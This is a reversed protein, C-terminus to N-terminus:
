NIFDIDVPPLGVYVPNDLNEAKEGISPYISNKLDYIIVGPDLANRDSLFLHDSPEHYALDAFYGAEGEDTRVVKVRSAAGIYVGYANYSNHPNFKILQTRLNSDSIIAYGEVPQGGKSKTIVFDTIEGQATEESFVYGNPGYGKSIKMNQIDIAVIGCDLEFSSGFNGVCSIFLHDSTSDGLAPDWDNHDVYQFKSFPFKANIWHDSGDGWEDVRMSIERIVRNYTAGHSSDVDVVLVSSYGAVHGNGRLRECAVFLRMTPGHFYMYRARPIGGASYPAYQSIDIDGIIDGTQPNIILITPENHRTVYARDPEVLAIDFPNCDGPDGEQKMSIERETEYENQPNIIQINDRGFRNIVYVRNNFVRVLADKHIIGLEQEYAVYSDLDICAYSGTAFDSTVVFAVNSPPAILKKEGLLDKTPDLMPPTECGSILLSSATVILTFVKKFNIMFDSRKMKIM